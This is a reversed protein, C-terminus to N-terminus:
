FADIIFKVNLLDTFTLKKHRQVTKHSRTFASNKIPDKSKVYKKGLPNQM